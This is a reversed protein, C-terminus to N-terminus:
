LDALSNRQDLKLYYGIAGSVLDLDALLIRKGTARKLAFATQTALTSSGSGPKASSFGILEGLERESPQVPRRLRELRALAEAQIEPEFPAYLFESAGQRVARLIVESDNHTHLGVIPIPPHIAALVRIVECARDLDTSLDVLVVDPQL